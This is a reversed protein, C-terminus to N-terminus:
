DIMRIREVLTQRKSYWVAVVAFIGTVALLAIAFVLLETVPFCYVLEGFLQFGNLARVLMAGVAGGLVVAIGLTALVYWLCEAVLMFSVQRATMGISQLVGLEQQRAILNTMLTNVLNVLSFLFLFALLLYIGGAMQMLYTEYVAAVDTRATIELVPNELLQFIATSM